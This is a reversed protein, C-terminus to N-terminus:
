QSLLAFRTNKRIHYLMIIVDFISIEDKEQILFLPKSDTAQLMASKQSYEFIITPIVTFDHIKLRKSETQSNIGELM